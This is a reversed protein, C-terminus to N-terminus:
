VPSSIESSMLDPTTNPVSRHHCEEDRDVEAQRPIWLSTEYQGGAGSAERGDQGDQGTLVPGLGVAHGRRAGQNRPLRHM